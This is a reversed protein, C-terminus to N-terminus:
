GSGAPVTGLDAAMQTVLTWNAVSPVRGTPTETPVPMMTYIDAFARQNRRPSWMTMSPADAPANVSSTSLM